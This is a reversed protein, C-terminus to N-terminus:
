KKLVEFDNDKNEEDENVEPIGSDNEDNVSSATQYFRQQSSSIVENFLGSYVPTTDDIQAPLIDFWQFDPKALMEKIQEGGFCVHFLFYTDAQLQQYAYNNFISKRCYEYM